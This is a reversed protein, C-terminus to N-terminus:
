AENEVSKLPSGKMAEKMLRVVGRLDDAHVPVMRKPQIDKDKVVEGVRALVRKLDREGWPPQQPNGDKQRPAAESVYEVETESLKKQAYGTAFTDLLLLADSQEEEPMDSQAITAQAAGITVMRGLAGDMLERIVPEATKSPIRGNALARNFRNWTAKADAKEEDSLTSNEIVSLIVKNAGQARIKPANMAIFIIVGIVIAFFVGAGITFGAALRASLPIAEDRDKSPNKKDTRPM